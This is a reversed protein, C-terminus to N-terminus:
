YDTQTKVRATDSAADAIRRDLDALEVDAAHKQGALSRLEVMLLDAVDDDDVTAMRKALRARKERLSEVVGAMAARERALGGDQRHKAVERAIIDPDRLVSAVTEWVAPDIV